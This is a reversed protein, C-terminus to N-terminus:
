EQLIGLRLSPRHWTPTNAKSDICIWLSTYALSKHQRCKMRDVQLWGAVGSCPRFAALSTPPPIGAVSLLRPFHRMAGPTGPPAAPLTAARRAWGWGVRRARRAPVDHRGTAGTARTTMSPLSGAPGTPAAPRKSGRRRGVLATGSGLRAKLGAAGACLSEVPGLSWTTWSCPAHCRPCGVALELLTRPRM